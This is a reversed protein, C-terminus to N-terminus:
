VYRDRSGAEVEVARRLVQAEKGQSSFHDGILQGEDLAKRRLGAKVDSGTIKRLYLNVRGSEQEADKRPEWQGCFM